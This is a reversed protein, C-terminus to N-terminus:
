DVTLKKKVKNYALANTISQSLSYWVFFLLTMVIIDLNKPVLGLIM